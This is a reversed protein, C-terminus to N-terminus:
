WFFDECGDARHVFSDLPRVRHHRQDCTITQKGKAVGETNTRQTKTFTHHSSAMLHHHGALGHRQFTCAVLQYTIDRRALGDEDVHLALHMSLLAGGVGHQVGTNKLIDVQRARVRHHVANGNVLRPEVHSLGQSLAQDGGHRRALNIHDNGDWLGATRGGHLQGLLNAFRIAFPKHLVTIHAAGEDHRPLAHAFFRHALLEIGDTHLEFAAVHQQHVVGDHSAGRGFFNNLHRTIRTSTLDVHSGSRRRHTERVDVADVHGGLRFEDGVVAAHFLYALENAGVREDVLIDIGHFLHDSREIGLHRSKLSRTKITM